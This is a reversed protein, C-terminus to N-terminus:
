LEYTQQIETRAVPAFHKKLTRIDILALDVTANVKAVDFTSYRLCQGLNLFSHIANLTTCKVDCIVELNEVLLLTRSRPM